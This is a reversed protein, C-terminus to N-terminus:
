PSAATKGAAEAAAADPYFVAMEAPILMALPHDRPYFLRGTRHAVFAGEGAQESRQWSFPPAEETAAPTTAQVSGPIRTGYIAPAAPFQAAFANRDRSHDAYLDVPESPTLLWWVGGAVAIVLLSAAVIRWARGWRTKRKPNLLELSTHMLSGFSAEAPHMSASADHPDVTRSGYREPGMAAMTTSGDPGVLVAIDTDSPNLGITEARLAAAVDGMEPRKAPDVDMTRKLLAALSDSCGPVLAKLDPRPAEVHQKLIETMTKGRFPAHGVLLYHLTAGLSYVDVAPTTARQKVLEPAMYNPTGVTRQTFDFPDNPDNLRVLGFDVLKARGTRNLMINSPKIDRHIMGQQHATALASAADALIPCARSPPLPGTAKILQRLSGGEVYETAIYWWGKHENIEYVRAVHPHELKAAAKAERLFQQVQKEEDMGEIRKRLVKLAVIRGLHMDEAQIVMGMTGEGLLRLLKFRGMSKGIWAAAGSPADIPKGLTGSSGAQKGGERPEVASLEVSAEAAEDLSEALDPDAEGTLSAEFADQDMTDHPDPPADQTM